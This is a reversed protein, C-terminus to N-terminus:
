RHGDGTSARLPSSTAGPGADLVYKVDQNGLRPAGRKTAQSHQQNCLPEPRMINQRLVLRLRCSESIRSCRRGEIDPYANLIEAETMGENLMGVVTDVPIRLGRMCPLPGM